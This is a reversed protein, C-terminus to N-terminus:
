FWYYQLRIHKPDEQYNQFFLTSLVWYWFRFSRNLSAMWILGFSIMIGESLVLLILRTLISYIVASCYFLLSIKNRMSFNHHILTDMWVSSERSVFMLSLWGLIFIIRRCPSPVWFTWHEIGLIQRCSLLYLSGSFLIIGTIFVLFKHKFGKLVDQQISRHCAPGRRSYITYFGPESPKWKHRM